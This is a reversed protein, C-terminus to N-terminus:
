SEKSETTMCPNEPKSKLCCHSGSISYVSYVTFLIFILFYPKFNQSFFIYFYKQIHRFFIYM